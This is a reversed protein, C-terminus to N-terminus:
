VGRELVDWFEPFSVAVVARDDLQINSGKEHALVGFAMAIRHDMRSTVLGSFARTTGDIVLGDPLEHASAGVENLNDTVAKIRDSEKVRLEGADRITTRGEARSALIALVPIEDIMRPILAGGVDVGRLESEHAVIEAVPEGAEERENELTINGGMDRLVELFGTRTPNVGVNHLRLHPIIGLVAAALLFAASSFDGPVAIDFPKLQEIPQLRVTHEAYANTEETLPAGMASLMRETHDRSASPERVSIEVGSV